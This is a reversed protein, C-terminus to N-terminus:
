AKGHQGRLLTAGYPHISPDNKALCEVLDNWWEMIEPPSDGLAERAKGYEHVLRAIDVLVSGPNQKGQRRYTSRPSKSSPGTM